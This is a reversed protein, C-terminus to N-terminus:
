ITHFKSLRREIDHLLELRNSHLPEQPREKLASLDAM